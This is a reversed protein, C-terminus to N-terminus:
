AERFKKGALLLAGLGAITLGIIAMEGIPTGTIPLSGSVASVVIAITVTGPHEALDTGFVLIQHDGPPTGAPVTTTLSANGSGDATVTSLVEGALTFTVQSGPLWGSTDLVLQGGPPVPAPNRQSGTPAVLVSLTGAVYSITYDTTTQGTCNIPYTGIPSAPVASTTCALTGGLSSSTDGNVFGTYAVTFPPNGATTIRKADNATITLPAKTLTLAGPAYSITYNSSTQGSCTIPYTAVHSSITATTTCSLSGGLSGSTDGNVFGSYSVTFAPNAVAYSRTKDDATITLPAPNATMTTLGLSLVFNGTPSYVAGPIIVGVDTATATVTCASSSSTQALLTCPSGTVALRNLITGLAVTGTPAQRVVFPMIDRVTLTCTVPTGYTVPNPCNVSTTTLHPLVPAADSSGVGTFTVMVAVVSAAAAVFRASRRIRSAM